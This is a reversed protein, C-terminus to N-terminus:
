ALNNVFTQGHDDGEHEETYHEPKEIMKQGFRAYLTPLVFLTLLTASILGGIVVTAISALLAPDAPSGGDLRWSAIRLVDQPRLPRRRALADALERLMQRAALRGVAKRAADAYM